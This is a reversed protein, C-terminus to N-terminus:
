NTAKRWVQNSRDHYIGSVYAIKMGIMPIEAGCPSALLQDYLQDAGFRAVLPRNSYIGFYLEVNTAFYSYRQDAGTVVTTILDVAETESTGLLLGTQRSFQAGYVQLFNRAISPNKGPFFHCRMTIM